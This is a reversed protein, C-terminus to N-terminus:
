LLFTGRAVTKPATDPSTATDSYAEGDTNAYCDTYADGNAHPITHTYADWL